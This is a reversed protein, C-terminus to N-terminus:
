TWEGYTEASCPTPFVDTNKFGRGMTFPVVRPLCYTNLLCRLILHDAWSTELSPRTQRGGHGGGTLKTVQLRSAATALPM